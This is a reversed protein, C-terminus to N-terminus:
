PLNCAGPNRACWLPQMPEANIGRGVMRFRQAHLRSAVEATTRVHGASDTKGSWATEAMAAARPWLRPDIVTEDTQESWAAVEAGVVRKRQEADTINALIDYNYIHMWTKFPDCWSNGDMNSLWAGHGCDLYYSDYTSAVVRYGKGVASVVSDHSRWAQIITKSSPVYHADFVTEEWTLPTKGTADLHDHVQSYWKILLTEVDMGTKATYNQVIPDDKWCKLNVEDGGIHFAEDTFLGAYEDILKNVFDVTAPLAINLQGSPPEAAYNDWNPQKNMCSMLEPHSQGVAYTHGPVDFEPVVRIGRDKAYRIVRKVDARSYTMQPGYAGKLHLEPFTASEVAWSQSDVIHWHFVNLKNYSMADLTRFIAALSYFNRASDFLVGRHAFAPADSIHIPTNAIAKVPGNATVLQSFTELGRVVGYPTKAHLTAAGDVPVDLTYSEDTSLGLAEDTSAVSVVLGGFSGSTLLMGRRYDAPALFRERNIIKRYRDVANNVVRGANGQTSISVWNVLTNASGELGGFSGSTLLMGRRYDAPALFRERNIIKRYRDVANNVVRGANGQTSISVWNVLTNASGEQLTQPIPWVALAGPFAAVLGALLSVKM